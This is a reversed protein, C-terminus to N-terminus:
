RLSQVKQPKLLYHRKTVQRDSHLLNATADGKAIDELDTEHKARIDKISEQPRFLSRKEANHSFIM